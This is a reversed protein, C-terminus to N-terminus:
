LWGCLEFRFYICMVEWQDYLREVDGENWALPDKKKWEGDDQPKEMRRNPKYKDDEKDGVVLHLALIAMFVVLFKKGEM